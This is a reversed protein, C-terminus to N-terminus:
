LKLKLSFMPLGTKLGEANGPKGLRKNLFYNQPTFSFSMDAWKKDDSKSSWTKEKKYKSVFGAWVATGTAVPLLLYVHHSESPIFLAVLFGIASGAMTAYNTNLGQKRSFKTNKFIRHGAYTGGIATIAPFIFHWPEEMPSIGFGLGTSLLGFSSNALMDGRTFKYKNYVKGALWYSAAGAALVSAGYVRPEEVNGAVLGSFTLFPILLSYYKFTAVKGEPFKKKKGIHFGVEGLAISSAIMTAAFAKGKWPDEGIDGYLLFGLAAGDLLGIFKGHRTMMITSYDIGQYKKKNIAPYALSVGLSLIPLAAAGAGDLQFLYISTIGYGLGYLGNNLYFKREPHSGMPTVDIATTDKNRSKEKPEGAWKLKNKQYREKESDSLNSLNQYFNSLYNKYDEFYKFEEQTLSENKEVKKVLSLYTRNREAEFYARANYPSEQGLVKVNSM